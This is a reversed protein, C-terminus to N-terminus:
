TVDPGPGHDLSVTASGSWIIPGIM